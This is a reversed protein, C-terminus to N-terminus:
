EATVELPVRALVTAERDMVYRLEYRGPAEPLQLSVPNGGNTYAYTEYGDEGPRSVAIYDLDYGPGEWGVSATGGAVARDPAVLAATVPTIEIARRALVSGDQGLHYRLEYRGPAAPLPLPAPSGDRTYAYHAYADDGPLGIGVYDAEHGPGSWGVPLTSGAPAADPATLTAAAETVAIPRTALIARNRELYYRLEYAGPATPMTLATPSGDRVYAYTEYADEGPAAVALFDGAEGPGTWDVAVPAGAEASDPAALTADPLAEPFVVTVTLDGPGTIDLSTEASREGTLSDARVAYRGPALDLALPNGSREEALTRDGAAVTWEVPDGLLAGSEDGLVARLTVSATVSPTETASTRAPAAAVTTLAEALEGANAATRFTGGTEEAICQMQGLAADDTVDFGIVHATFDIGAQELARAAACPDPNCTEIGDSVLIVTAAEETYRLAEAAAIVADTMPTKGRPNVGNVAAAIAGKTGPAPAVMTEIDTCDGRSRHGYVTLGLNRDEPLDQLIRGVVERAIVIKNVGDVQGWMSGSGDLVLITNAREEAALPPALGAALTALLLLRRM